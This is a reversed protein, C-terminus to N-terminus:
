LKLKEEKEVVPSGGWSHRLIKRLKKSRSKSKRSKKSKNKSKRPM